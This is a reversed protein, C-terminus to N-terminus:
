RDAALLAAGILGSDDGLAARSVKLDQRSVWSALQGVREVIQEHMRPSHRLVGGGLILHAPNLVTVQNAIAQGLLALAQEYIRRAGPDGAEAAEELVEATLRTLDANVLSSLLTSEGAAISEHMQAILNHGGAHGVVPLSDYEALIAVLAGGSGAEAAFATDLGGAPATVSAGEARLAEVLSGAAYREAFALEPRAHIRRSLGDLLDARAEVREAIRSKLADLSM